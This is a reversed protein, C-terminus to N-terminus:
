IDFIVELAWGDGKEEMKLGHYTAAKLMLNGEHREPDFGEGRVTAALREDSLEEINVSKGVFGFADFIYILENLWAVLLDQYNPRSVEIRREEREGVSEPETILSYMGLAANVFAERLTRGEARIGADGSIDLYEYGM